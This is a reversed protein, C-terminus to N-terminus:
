EGSKNKVTREFVGFGLLASGAALFAEVVILATHSDNVKGFVAFYFLNVGLFVGLGLIISGWLRKSSKEGNMGQLFGIQKQENQM